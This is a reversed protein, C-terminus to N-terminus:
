SCCPTDVVSCSPCDTLSTCTTDCASQCLLPPCDNSLLHIKFASSAEDTGNGFLQVTGAYPQFGGADTLVYVNYTTTVEDGAKLSILATLTANQADHFSLYPVFSQKFIVNNVLLALGTIPLGLVQASGALNTQDIQVSVIYYGSRPAIYRTPGFFVNGNPDDLITDFDVITGL